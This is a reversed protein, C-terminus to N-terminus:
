RLQRASDFRGLLRRRRSAATPDRGHPEPAAAVLVLLLARRRQLEEVVEDEDERDRLDGVEQEVVQGPLAREMRRDRQERDPPGPVVRGPDRVLEVGVRGDHADQEEPEHEPAEQNRHGDRAREAVSAEEEGGRVDCDLDPAVREEGEGGGRSARELALTRFVDQDPERGRAREPERTPEGVARRADQEPQGRECDVVGRREDEVPDGPQPPEPVLRPRDLGRMEGLAELEEDDDREALRDHDRARRRRLELEVRRSREREGDGEERRRSEPPEVEVVDRAHGLPPQLERGLARAERPVPVRVEVRHMM